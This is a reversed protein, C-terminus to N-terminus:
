SKHITLFFVIKGEFIKKKANKDRKSYIINKYAVCCFINQYKQTLGGLIV